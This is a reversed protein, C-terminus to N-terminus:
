KGAVCLSTAQIFFKQAIGFKMIYTGGGAIGDLENDSVEDSRHSGWQELVVAEFEEKSFDFADENGVRVLGDIGEKSVAQLKAEDAAASQLDEASVDFGAEKAIKVVGEIRDKAFAQLKTRLIQDENVRAIFQLAQEKAM